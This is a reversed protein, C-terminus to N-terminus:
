KRRCSKVIERELEIESWENKGAFNETDGVFPWTHMAENHAAALAYGEEERWDKVSFWPDDESDGYINDDYEVFMDGCNLHANRISAIRQLSDEASKRNKPSRKAIVRLVGIRETWKGALRLSTAMDWLKMWEDGPM